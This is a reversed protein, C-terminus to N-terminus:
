WKEEAEEPFRAFIREALGMAPALNSIEGYWEIYRLIQRRTSYVEYSDRGALDVLADAYRLARQEAEPPPPCDNNGGPPMILSLLYLEILNGHAWIRQQPDKNSLDYLSLLHALSWLANPDKEARQNGAGNSKGTMDPMLSASKQFEASQQMILTLSLYQAVGWSDARNLLFSDWYFDRAKRLLEKHEKLYREQTYADFLNSRAAAFLVEAQRKLTSALLKNIRASQSPIRKLLKILREKAENIKHWAKEVMAKKEEDSTPPLLTMSRRTQIRISLERTVEDAHNVAANISRMVQDIQVNQLQLEFDSPM